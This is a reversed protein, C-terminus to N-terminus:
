GSGKIRSNFPLILFPNSPAEAIFYYLSKVPFCGYGMGASAYYDYGFSFLTPKLFNKFHSDFWFLFNSYFAPIGAM